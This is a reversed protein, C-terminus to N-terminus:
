CNFDPSSMLSVKLSRLIPVHWWIFAHIQANLAGNTPRDSFCVKLSIVLCFWRWVIHRQEQWIRDLEQMAVGHEKSISVDMLDWTILGISVAVSTAHLSFPLVRTRM